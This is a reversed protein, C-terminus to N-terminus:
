GTSYLEVLTSTPRVNICSDRTGFKDFYKTIDLYVITFDHRQDLAKYLNHTMHTLQLQTSHHPRYGSQKDSLLCNATLHQYIRNFVIREIIKSLCCLLSIPRYNHPNSASGKNKFVPTINALKWSSPFKSNSLSKNLLATLPKYIIIATMKLIKTPLLDPGTSKHIDLSNLLKLVEQETAQIRNLPPVLNVDTDTNPLTPTESLETQSAFHDNLLNAKQSEDTITEGDTTDLPPITQRKQRGILSKLTKHYKFPDHKYELLKGAENQIHQNHLQRNLHSAYNRQQKWQDWDKVTQRQQALKFLRNRKRINWKLSGTMWPKDRPKIHVIRTPIAESAAELIAATFKTTATDVDEDLITDWDTNILLSTLKDADVRAYDWITISKSTMTPPTIDLTVYIPFHDITSFPSLTGHQKIIHTNSTIVLDRLNATNESIRTPESILQTMSLTDITDKLKIDFNTIGSHATYQNELFINGANLDGLVLISTPSFMQAATVSDALRATFDTLRDTTLNPPLYLCCTIIILGNIKIMTWTWEEGELELDSIRSASMNSRIYTATGGGHRNRNNLFPPHFYPLEYLSPHVTSDLKTETLMLIDINNTEVFSHLEDLRGPATISNINVHSININRVTPGPNPEIGAILLLLQTLKLTIM